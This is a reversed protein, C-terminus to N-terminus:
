VNFLSIFAMISVFAAFGSFLESIEQEKLRGNGIEYCAPWLFANLIGGVPLAILFGKVAMFLRCYEVGGIEYGLGHIQISKKKTVPISIGKCMANVLPTLRQRRTGQAAAPNRGWQLVPGHGTEMWLYSWIACALAALAWGTVIYFAAGFAAGFLIEPLMSLNFPMIGGKDKGTSDDIAGKKNLKEAWFGGGAMRTLIPLLFFLFIVNM